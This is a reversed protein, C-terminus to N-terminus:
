HELHRRQHKEDNSWLGFVQGIVGSFFIPILMLWWYEWGIAFCTIIAAPWLAAMVVGGIRKRREAVEASTPAQPVIVDSSVPQLGPRRGPLDAFLPTLQGLTRAQLASSLREDFEANDLRGATLHEQLLSVADDREADGIRPSPTPEPEVTVREM